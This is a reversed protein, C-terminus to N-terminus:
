NGSNEHNTAPCQVSKRKSDILNWNPQGGAYWSPAREATHCNLCTATEVKRQIKAGFPHDGGPGHCNECQVPAHATQIRALQRSLPLNEPDSPLLKFEPADWAATRVTSLFTQTEELSLVQNNDKLQTLGHAQESTRVGLTHCSLCELNKAQGNKSLTDLAEAHHTRSWFAFQPLHCEACAPFTQFRAVSLSSKTNAPIQERQEQLAHIESKAETLLADLPSPGQFSEDLAQLRVTPPTSLPELFGMWQNRFAVQTLHTEGVVLPEQLFSQSHAGIIWDIGRIQKALKRDGELGLHSLVIIVDHTKRLKPLAHRLAVAPDSAKLEKPWGLKPGVIGILAIRKGSSTKRSVYPKFYPKGKQPGSAHMLNVATVTPAHPIELFKSYQKLGLAFDKEGPLLVSQPNATFIRAITEAQKLAQSRLPQPIETMAFFLDGTDVWWEDGAATPPLSAIWNARRAFGGQPNGRCGCPELDGQVDHSFLIRFPAPAPHQAQASPSFLGLTALLLPGIM